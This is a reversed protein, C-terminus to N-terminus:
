QGVFKHSKGFILKVTLNKVPDIIALYVKCASASVWTRIEGRSRAGTMDTVPNYHYFKNQIIKINIVCIDSEFNACM